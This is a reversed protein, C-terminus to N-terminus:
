CIVLLCQLTKLTREILRPHYSDQELRKQGQHSDQSLHVLKTLLLLESNINRGKVSDMFPERRGIERSVERIYVGKGKEGERKKGWM